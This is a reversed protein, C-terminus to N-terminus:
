SRVDFILRRHVRSEDRAREEVDWQLEWIRLGVFATEPVDSSSRWVAPRDFHYPAAWRGLLWGSTGAAGRSRFRIRADEIRGLLFKAVCAQEPTVAHPTGSAVQQEEQTLGLRFFRTKLWTDFDEYPLPEIFRPDIAYAKGSATVGEIKWDIMTKPSINHVLAWTSFPWAEIQTLGTLCSVAVAYAIFHIIARDTERKRRQLWVIRLGLAAFGLFVALRALDAAARLWPFSEALSHLM